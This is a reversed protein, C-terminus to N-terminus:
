HQRTLQIIQFRGQRAVTVADLIQYILEVGSGILDLRQKAVREIRHAASSRSLISAAPNGIQAQPSLLLPVSLASLGQWRREACYDLYELEIM